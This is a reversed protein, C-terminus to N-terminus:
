QVISLELRNKAFYLCIEVRAGQGKDRRTRLDGALPGGPPRSSHGQSADSPDRREGTPSDIASDDIVSPSITAGNSFCSGRWAAVVDFVVTGSCAARQPHHDLLEWTLVSHAPDNLDTSGCSFDGPEAVRRPSTGTPTVCGHATACLVCVLVIGPLDSDLRRAIPSPTLFPETRHGAGATTRPDISGECVIGITILLQGPPASHGYRRPAGVRRVLQENATRTLWGSPRTSACRLLLSISDSFVSGLGSNVIASVLTCGHECFWITWQRIGSLRVDTM